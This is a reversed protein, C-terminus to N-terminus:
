EGLELLRVPGMLGADLLKANRPPSPGTTWTTREAEPLGADGVLRNHWTNAVRIQLENRGDRLADTVEVRYPPTWAVGCSRGNLTVEAVDAVRGLDLWARKLPQNTWKWSFTTEYAAIGSFHRTDGEDNASWSGLECAQPTARDGLRLTWDCEIERADDLSLWEGILRSSDRVAKDRVVLFVSGHPALEVPVIMRGRDRGHWGARGIEGTLPEWYEVERATSHLNAYFSQTVDRQNSIFYINVGGFARHAWALGSVESEGIEKTAFDPVVELRILDDFRLRGVHVHTASLKGLEGALRRVELSAESDVRSGPAGTPMTGIVIKAGAKALELLKAVVEPTMLDGQPNLKREAPIVLLSYSAGGPLEIRGNRVTPLKLLADRNISDYSYGRLPDPWDSLSPIGASATVGQPMERQPLGINAVRKRERAVAEPGMPGPLTDTLDWPLVARRPVEEGTFVAIDVVPTGFQLMAQCRALYDTWGRAMPWWTEDRQLFTGIGSLTMGPRRDLWPNHAFVHTVLRNAGLAFQRDGLAKLTAPSEDWALRLETFAEAQVIPKGYIHAASIADLMDNPKDHTPSRLWFEGMPVDVKAFHAMGDGVFTPSTCESSFWCGDAHALEAMIGYFNDVVLEAITTRVDHLFRESEEASGVPIGAMAPLWPLPDYGRRSRFEAPFEATWNQTGCEWSDVHFGKLARSALETGVQRRIEGFWKDYQLRAAAASFKDCELGKGGGATENRKGTSTHGVRLVTWRGPPIQWRLRGTASESMSLAVIADRPVCLENGVEEETTRPAVRWAAGSKGEFADIRAESSLEVGRIKLVPRWKASDLDEAGPESGAPDFVFRFATSTTAPLSFTWPQEGEQWGHRPAVLQKVERFEGTEDRAEVRLRRAEYNAGDPWVTMSRATFPEDFAYEIWGPRDSRWRPANPRTADGALFAADFGVESTTVQPTVTHTSLGTGEPSPFALVAVDRYHDERTAPRPPQVDLMRGAEGGDVDIRSWVLRQMSKDPTIWPGGATAFGDCVHMAIELGLRDAEEMAHRVLDYWVQTGQIAPPEIRAPTTPGKIPMLYAGGLGAAKMAELDATIGERTVAADMWYWFTWPRAAPPPNRFAAELAAGADSATATEAEQAHVARTGAVNWAALTACLILCPAFFRERGSARRAKFGAAEFRM